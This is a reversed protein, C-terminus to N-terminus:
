QEMRKKDGKDRKNLEQQRNIEQQKNERNNMQRQTSKGIEYQSNTQNNDEKIGDEENRRRKHAIAVKKRDKKGEKKDKIKEKKGIQEQKEKKGKYNEKGHEM